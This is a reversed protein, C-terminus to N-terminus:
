RAYDRNVQAVLVMDREIAETVTEVLHDAICEHAPKGTRKMENKLWIRDVHLDFPMLDNGFPNRDMKLKLINESMGAGARALGLLDGGPDVVRM